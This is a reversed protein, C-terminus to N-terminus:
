YEYNKNEDWSLEWCSDGMQKSYQNQNAPQCLVQVAWIGSPALEIVISGNENTYFEFYPFPKHDLPTMGSSIHGTKGTQHNQITGLYDRALKKDGWPENCFRIKKGQIDKYFNGDLDFTIIDKKGIFKIWGTVKNLITNDLEGEVIFEALKWVM